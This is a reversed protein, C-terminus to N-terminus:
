PDPNLDGKPYTYWYIVVQLDDFDVIGNFQGEFDCERNYGYLAKLDGAPYTYWYIVSQLDDFDIVREGSEVSVDGPWKNRFYGNFIDVSSPTIDAKGRDLLKTRHTGTLSISIDTSGYGVVLFEITALRGSGNIGPYNRLISDSFASYGKANDTKNMVWPKGIARLRDAATKDPSATRNLFEGPFIRKASLITPDWTVNLQWAFLSINKGPGIESSINIHFKVTQGVTKLRNLYTGNRYRPVPHSPFYTGSDVFLKISGPGPSLPEVPPEATGGGLLSLKSVDIVGSAFVGSFVLMVSLVAIISIIRKRGRM